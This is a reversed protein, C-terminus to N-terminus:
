NIIFKSPLYPLLDEPKEYEFAPFGQWKAFKSYIDRPKTGDRRLAQISLAGESKSLKAGSEDEILTHHHIKTKTSLPIELLEALYIQAATSGILDNGRVILNVGFFHDDVLSALQYAPIGDKRKVVFDPMRTGLDYKQILGSPFEAWSCTHNPHVKVRWAFGEQTLPLNKDLCTRQYQNDVNSERIDKRSCNCSYLKHSAILIDLAERYHKLRLTQSFITRFDDLNKPGQDYDIWLFKLTEFIDSIYEPRTRTADLDDIRLILRGSNKRTILWTLLFNFANGIHM